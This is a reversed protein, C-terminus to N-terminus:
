SHFIGKERFYRAYEQDSDKIHVIIWEILFNVLDQKELDNKQVYCKIFDNVKNIYGNHELIHYDTEPYQHKKFLEEETSFHYCAYDLLENM